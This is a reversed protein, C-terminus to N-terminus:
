CHPLPHRPAPPQSAAKELKDYFFIYAASFSFSAPLSHKKVFAHRMVNLM